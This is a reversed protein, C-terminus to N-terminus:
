QTVQRQVWTKTEELEFAAQRPKPDLEKLKSVGVGALIGATIALAGGVILASAWLPVAEAIGFILAWVLIVFSLLGLLVGGAMVAIQTGALKAKDGMETTALKVEQRVLTSTERALDGFLDAVSRHEPRPELSTTM